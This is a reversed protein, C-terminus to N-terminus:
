GIQFELFGENEKLCANGRRKEFDSSVLTHLLKMTTSTHCLVAPFTGSMTLIQGNYAILNITHLHM